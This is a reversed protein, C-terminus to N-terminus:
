DPYDNIKTTATSKEARRKGSNKKKNRELKINMVRCRRCRKTLPNKDVRKDSFVRVVTNEMLLIVNVSRLNLTITFATKSQREKM